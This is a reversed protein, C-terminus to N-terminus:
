LVNEPFHDKEGSPQTFFRKSLWEKNRSFHSPWQNELGNQAM